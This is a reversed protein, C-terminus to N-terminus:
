TVGSDLHQIPEDEKKIVEELAKALTPIHRKLRDIMRQREELAGATYHPIVNTKGPPLSNAYQYARRRLSNM